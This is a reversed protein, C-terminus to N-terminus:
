TKHTFILVSKVNKKAAIWSKMTSLSRDEKHGCYGNACKSGLSNQINWIHKTTNISNSSEYHGYKKQYELHIGLDQNTSNIVKKCGKEGVDSFYKETMTINIGYEKNVKALCTRIGDHGTGKTTTGMWSALKKQPIVKGTFNRIVEQVMHPACYYSTNQGMQDCGKKTAHGYKKM